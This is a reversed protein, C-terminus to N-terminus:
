LDIIRTIVDLNKIPNSERDIPDCDLHRHVFILHRFLKVSCVHRYITFQNVSAFIINILLNVCCPRTAFAITM